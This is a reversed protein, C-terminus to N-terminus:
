INACIYGWHYNEAFSGFIVNEGSDLNHVIGDAAQAVLSLADRITTGGDPEGMAYAAGTPVVTRSDLEVGLLAALEATVAA